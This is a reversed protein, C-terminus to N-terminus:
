GNGNGKGKDTRLDNVVLTTATVNVAHVQVILARVVLASAQNSMPQTLFVTLVFFATMVWFIGYPSVYSVVLGAIFTAAQTKEMAEGFAIMCAILVMMEWNVGRYGEEPTLCGTLFMLVTGLMFAISFPMREISTNTFPGPAPRSAAIRESCDFPRCTEAIVSTVGIGCM